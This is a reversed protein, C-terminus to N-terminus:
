RTRKRILAALVIWPEAELGDHARPRSEQSVALLIFESTSGAFPAMVEVIEIQGDGGADNNIVIQMLNATTQNESPLALNTSTKYSVNLTTGKRRRHARLSRM